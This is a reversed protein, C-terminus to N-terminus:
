VKEKLVLFSKIAKQFQIASKKVNESGLIASTLAVGNSGMRMVEELRNLKIGGLAFLPLHTNKKVEAIAEPGIPNGFPAKSPTSYIPGFTVFDAGQEEAQRVEKLSHTSVGILKEKGILRRVASIPFSDRRLHVGDAKVALALDVRDNIFFKADASRTMKRLEVALPFLEQPNLDRERLQVARVGGELAAQVASFLTKAKPQHRDTILYLSFDVTPGKM